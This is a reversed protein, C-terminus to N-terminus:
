QSAAVLGSEARLHIVDLHPDLCLHRVAGHLLTLKPKLHAEIIPLKLSKIFRFKAHAAEANLQVNM